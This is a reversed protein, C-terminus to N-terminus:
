EGAKVEPMPTTEEAPEDDLQVKNFPVRGRVGRRETPTPM